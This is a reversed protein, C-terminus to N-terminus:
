KLWDPIERKTYKHLHKKGYRYYNRYAIIPNSNQYEFPMAQAPPTLYIKGSEILAKPPYKLVNKLKSTKHIKNYRFEYEDCLACFLDYLWCYNYITDRVWKACPHNKHTPKYLGFKPGDLVYHATSLLQASELIMKVVHRDVHFRASEIPDNSLYFINM